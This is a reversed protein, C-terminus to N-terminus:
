PKKPPVASTQGAQAMPATPIGAVSPRIKRYVAWVADVYWRTEAYPPIGGYRHVAGEGANYAALALNWDGFERYYRRLTRATGLLNEWPDKPDVSATRATQPMLQGLGTAGAGSTSTHDFRSEVYVVAALLWPDMGERRAAAFLHEGIWRAQEQSLRPNSGRALAAIANPTGSGAPARQRLVELRALWGRVIREQFASHPRRLGERFYTEAEQTKGAATAAVGAWIAPLASLPKAQAVQTFVAFAQAPAGARYADIGAQLSISDGRAEEADATGIVAVSMLTVLAAAVAHIPRVVRFAVGPTHGGTADIVVM